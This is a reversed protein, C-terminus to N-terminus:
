IGGRPATPNSLTSTIITHQFECFTSPPFFPARLSPFMVFVHCWKLLVKSLDCLLEGHCQRSHSWGLKMMKQSWRKLKHPFGSTQFLVTLLKEMGTAMAKWFVCHHEHLTSSTHPQHLLLGCWLMKTGWTVESQPCFSSHLCDVGLEGLESWHM